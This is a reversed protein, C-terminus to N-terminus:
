HGPGFESIESFVARLVFRIECNHCTMVTALKLRVQDFFEVLNSVSITSM